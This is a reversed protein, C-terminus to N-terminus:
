CAARSPSSSLFLQSLSPPQARSLLSLPEVLQSRPPTRDYPEIDPIPDQEVHKKAYAKTYVEAHPEAYLQPMSLMSLSSPPSQVRSLIPSAYAEAHQSIYAEPPQAIYAETYVEAHSEASQDVYPQPM